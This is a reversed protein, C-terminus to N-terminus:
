SGRERGNPRPTCPALVNEASPARNGKRVHARPDRSIRMIALARATQAERERQIAATVRGDAGVARARERPRPVAKEVASAMETGDRDNEGRLFRDLETVSWMM